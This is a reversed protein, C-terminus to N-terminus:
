KKLRYYFQEVKDIVRHQEFLEYQKNYIDAVLTLAAQRLRSRKMFSAGGAITEILDLVHIATNENLSHLDFEPALFRIKREAAAIVVESKEGFSDFVQQRFSRFLRELLKTYESPEPSSQKQQAESAAQEPHPKASRRPPKQGL